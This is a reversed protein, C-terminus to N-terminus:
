RNDADIQFGGVTIIDSSNAMQFGGNGIKRGGNSTKRDTSEKLSCIILYKHKLGLIKFSLKIETPPTDTAEIRTRVIIIQLINWRFMKHPPYYNSHHNLTGDSRM